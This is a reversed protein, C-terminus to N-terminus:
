PSSPSVAYAPIPPSTSPALLQGLLPGLHHRAQKSIHRKSHIPLARHVHWMLRAIQPTDLTRSLYGRWLDTPASFFAGFFNRLQPTDLGILVEGGFRYLSHNRRESPSWLSRWTARTDVPGAQHHARLYASIATAVPEVKSATYAMQYGTAPHVFGAAAGFPIVRQDPTPLAIDMAIECHEEAGTWSFVTQYSDLRASLRRKLARTSVLPRSVLVTEEVFWRGDGLPLAYLFTPPGSAGVGSDRFDMLTPM